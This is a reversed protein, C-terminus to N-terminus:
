VKMGEKQFMAKSAKDGKVYLAVALGKKDLFRLDTSDGDIVDFGNWTKPMDQGYIFAINGGKRLYDLCQKLNNKGTKPNHYYSLTLDYNPLNNFKLRGNVKTYDYFQIQPYQRITAIWSIDSYCNMRVVPKLKERECKAVFLKLEKDKKAHFIEPYENLVITKIVKSLMNRPVVNMGSFLGICHQDCGAIKARSCMQYGSVDAPALSLEITLYGLFAKDSKMTKFNTGFLKMTKFQELAEEKTPIPVNEQKETMRTTM